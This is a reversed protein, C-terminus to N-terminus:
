SKEQNKYSKVLEEYLHYFLTAAVVTVIGGIMVKRYFSVNKLYKTTNSTNSSSITALASHTRALPASSRSMRLEYPVPSSAPPSAFPLVHSDVLARMSRGSEDSSENRLSTIDANMATLLTGYGAVADGKSLTENDNMKSYSILATAAGATQLTATTIRAWNDKFYASIRENSTEQQTAGLHSIAMLISVAAILNQRKM